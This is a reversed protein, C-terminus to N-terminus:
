PGHIPANKRELLRGGISSFLVCCCVVLHFDVSCPRDLYSDAPHSGDIYWAAPYSGERIMWIFIVLVLFVCFVRRGEMFEM